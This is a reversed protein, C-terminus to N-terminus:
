MRIKWGRVVKEDIRVINNVVESHFPAPPYKQCNGQLGELTNLRWQTECSGCALINGEIRFKKSNCPECFRFATVLKGDSNIFALLPIITTGADYDFAVIKKDLVVTLPITIYGNVVTATIEKQELPEGAYAAAMAVSPQNEVIPNPKGPLNVIYFYLYSGFLSVAIVGYIMKSMKSMPHKVHQGASPISVRPAKETLVPSEDETLRPTGCNPCFNENGDFQTNCSSCERNTM